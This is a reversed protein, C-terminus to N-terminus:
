KNTSPLEKSELVKILLPFGESFLQYVVSLNINSGSFISSYVNALEDFNLEDYIECIVKNKSIDKAIESIVVLCYSCADFTKDDNFFSEPDMNNLYNIGKNIWMKLGFILEEDKSM